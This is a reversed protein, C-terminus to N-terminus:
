FARRAYAWYARWPLRWDRTRLGPAFVDFDVKQLKELWLATAVAPMFVGIALEVDQKRQATSKTRSFSASAPLEDGYEHGVDYLHEFEHGEEKGARVDKLIERATILHDNARTAVTFVADRLNPAAGGERLVDEERVGCEVMVDLPLM